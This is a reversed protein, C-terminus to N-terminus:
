QFGNKSTVALPLVAVNDWKFGKLTVEEMKKSQAIAPLATSEVIYSTFTGSSQQPTPKESPKSCFEARDEHM